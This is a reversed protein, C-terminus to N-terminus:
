NKNNFGKSIDGGQELQNRSNLIKREKEEIAIAFDTDDKKVITVKDRRALMDKLNM